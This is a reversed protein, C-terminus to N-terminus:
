CPLGSIFAESITGPGAKTVLLDSVAMLEPM